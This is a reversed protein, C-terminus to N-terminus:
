RGLESVNTGIRLGEVAQFHHDYSFLALGHQLASAAVWMDNTPIPTAAKRLAAYIIAYQRATEQDLPVIQVRPSTLFAALESRNQEEVTGVAFGALLEGLVIVNVGITPAQRFVDLADARGQKFAVYANADILIPRM